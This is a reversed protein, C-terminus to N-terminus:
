ALTPNCLTLHTSLKGDGHHPRQSPNGDVQRQVNAEKREKYRRVLRETKLMPDDAVSCGPRKGRGQSPETVSRRRKALPVVFGQELYRQLHHSKPVDKSCPPRRLTACAPDHRMTGDGPPLDSAPEQKKARSPENHELSATSLARKNCNRKTQQQPNDRQGLPALKCRRLRRLVTPISKSRLKKSIRFGTPGHQPCTCWPTGCTCHWKNVAKSRNCERCIVTIWRGNSLPSRNFLEKTTSCDPCRITLSPDAAEIQKNVLEQAKARSNHKAALLVLHNGAPLTNWPAQGRLKLRRTTVKSNGVHLADLNKTTPKLGGLAAMAEHMKRKDGDTLCLQAGICAVHQDIGYNGLRHDKCRAPRFCVTSQNNGYRNLM